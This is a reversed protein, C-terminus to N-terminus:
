KTMTIECLWLGSNVRHISYSRHALNGRYRNYIQFSVCVKCTNTLGGYKIQWSYCLCVWKAMPTGCSCHKNNIKNYFYSRWISELSCPCSDTNLLAQSNWQFQVSLLVPTSISINTSQVSMWIVGKSWYVQYTFALELHNEFSMPKTSQVWTICQVAQIPSATKKISSSAEQSTFKCMLFADKLPDGPPPGSLFKSYWSRWESHCHAAFVRM